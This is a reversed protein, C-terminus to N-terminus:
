IAEPDEEMGTGDEKRILTVISRSEEVLKAYDEDLTDCVASARAINNDTITLTLGVSILILIIFRLM